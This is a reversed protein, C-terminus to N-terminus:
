STKKVRFCLSKLRDRENLCFLIETIALKGSVDRKHLVYLNDPVVINTRQRRNQRLCAKRCLRRRSGHLLGSSARHNCRAGLVLLAM